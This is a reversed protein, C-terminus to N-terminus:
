LASVSDKAEGREPASVKTIKFGRSSLQKVADTAEQSFPAADTVLLKTSAKEAPGQETGSDKRLVADHLDYVQEPNRSLILYLHEEGKQEDLEFCYNQPVRQKTRGQVVESEDRIQPSPFLADWSGNSVRQLVYMYGARNPELELALCDGTHFIGDPDVPKAENTNKDVLLLSYRLGLHDVVPIAAPAPGSQHSINARNDSTTKRPTNRVGSTTGKANINQKKEPPVQDAGSAAAAPLAPVDDGVPKETYYLERASLADNAQKAAVQGFGSVALAGGLVCIKLLM